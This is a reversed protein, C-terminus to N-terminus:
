RAAAAAAATARRERRPPPPAPVRGEQGGAGPAGVGVPVGAVGGAAPEAQGQAVQPPGHGQAPPAQGQAPPAQPPPFNQNQQQGIQTAELVRTLALVTNNLTEVQANLHDVKQQLTRTEEQQSM